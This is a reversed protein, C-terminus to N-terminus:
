ESYNDPLDNEFLIVDKPKALRGIHQSAEELNNVVFINEPNYNVEMLGEYIPKTRKEGVLIAYDCVKGINNGFERNAEEEMEGLEVMGPTVIIKKGGKFQSLVDLAAKAGIPNSNFADDIIIVGTGPNIINLRHPIPEVKSIGECIEDFSLGLVRGVCAGALLNYINHKGLLKTSCRKSNGEKDRLTFSSGLESVEIDDAYIDLNEVDDIGFLIKEKFTKDALKKIYENDYNFIAVGDTPLEEILEYKTKMINDINQFTELHVPGISTLVGIRPQCLEAVEKIEGIQRAGMEAVFVEHKDDLENNIVKSLGMPTNYSEPTNLLNYKEELITGIIFKTSTKGFSGTVGVVTLDEREKIKGQAARYYGMNIRNEIPVMIINSLYMTDPQVLLVVLAIPIFIVFLFINDLLIYSIAPIFLIIGCLILNVVYLRTARQ